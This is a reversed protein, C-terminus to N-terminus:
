LAWVRAGNEEPGDEKNRGIVLSPLRLKVTQGEVVVDEYGTCVLKTELGLDTLQGKVWTSFMM